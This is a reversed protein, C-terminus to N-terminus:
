GFLYNWPPAGIAQAVETKLVIANTDSGEQISCLLSVICSDNEKRCNPTSQTLISYKLVFAAICRYIANHISLHGSVVIALHHVYIRILLEDALYRVSCCCM